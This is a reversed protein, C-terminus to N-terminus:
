SMWARQANSSRSGPDSPSVAPKLPQAMSSRILPVDMREATRRTVSGDMTAGDAAIARHVGAGADLSIDMSPHLSRQSLARIKGPSTTASPFRTCGGARMAAWGNPSPRSPAARGRAVASSRVAPREHPVTECGSPKCSARRRIRDRVGGPRPDLRLRHGRRNVSFGVGARVNIGLRSLTGRAADARAAIRPATVACRARGSWWPWQRRCRRGCTM